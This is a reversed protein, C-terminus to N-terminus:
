ALGAVKPFIRLAVEASPLEVGLDAALALAARLDKDAFAATSPRSLTPMGPMSVGVGDEVLGMHPRVWKGAANVAEVFRDLPVGAAAALQAGQWAVAWDTFLIMNCALKARMGNGLEGCHVMPSSFAEIVPRAQAVAEADGGVMTPM